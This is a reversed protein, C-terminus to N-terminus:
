RLIVTDHIPNPFNYKYKEALRVIANFAPVECREGTKQSRFVFTKKNPTVVSLFNRLDSKRVGSWVYLLYQDRVKDWFPSSSLDLNELEKLEEKSFVVADTEETTLVIKYRQFPNQELIGEAVAVQLFSKLTKLRNHITNKMM